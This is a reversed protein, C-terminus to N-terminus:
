PPDSVPLQRAHEILRERTEMGELRTPSLIEDWVQETMFKTEMGELRTPSLLLLAHKHRKGFTEM